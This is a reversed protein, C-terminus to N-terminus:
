QPKECGQILEKLREWKIIEHLAPWTRSLSLIRNIDRLFAGVAAGICWWGLATFGIRLYWYGAAVPVLLLLWALRFPPILSLITLRKTEYKAYFRLLILQRKTLKMNPM